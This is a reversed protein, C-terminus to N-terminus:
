SAPREAAAAYGALIAGWGRDSEFTQRVAEAAAGLNELLRHELDVRTANEGLAVFRVEVETLLAPDYRWDAGIRWALAIRSPPEWVLVDGWDCQSGDEGTEYWRGGVRPEIAANTMEAKGIHHSAPWWRGFDRTFVAFAKEIPVDVTVSKRVPAPTIIDTM